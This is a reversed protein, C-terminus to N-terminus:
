VKWYQLLRVLISIGLPTVLIPLQAKLYQVLRVDMLIGAPTVLIPSVAKMNHVLRVLMFDSAIAAGVIILLVNLLILVPPVNVTGLPLV